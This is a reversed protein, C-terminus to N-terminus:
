AGLQSLLANLNQGGVPNGVGVPSFSVLSRGNQAALGGLAGSNNLQNIANWDGNYAQQALNAGDGLDVPGGGGTLGVQQAAGGMQSKASQPQGFSFGAGGSSYMGGPLGGTGGMGGIGLGGGLGSIASSLNGFIGPLERAMTLQPLIGAETNQLQYNGMLNGLQLNNALQALLGQYGLQQGQMQPLYQNISQAAGPSNAGLLNWYATPDVMGYPTSPGGGPFFVGIPDVAPPGADSPFNGSGMGAIAM